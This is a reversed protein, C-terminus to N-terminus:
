TEGDIFEETKKDRLLSLAQLAGDRLVDIMDEAEARSTFGSMDFQIVYIAAINSAALKLLGKVDVDLNAYDDSWNRRTTANILSEAETMFQNIYAEANSTSSANAGTKRQVEATTAFIGTDVM